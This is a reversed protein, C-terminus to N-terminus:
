IARAERLGFGQAWAEPDDAPSPSSKRAFSPALRLFVDAIRPDYTTGRGEEIIAVAAEHSLEGRYPRESTLADYSDTIALVRAGIPIDEGRLGDPYGSGNWKEHHHRVITALPGPFCVGSLIDGGIVAHQKVEDFEDPTLPGPKVLLRDPIALKGVDHLLAAMEIAAIMGDDQIRAARALAVAYRQVRHSHQHTSADRATMARLLAELMTLTALTLSDGTEPRM